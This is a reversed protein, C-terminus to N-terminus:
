NSDFDLIKLWDSYLRDFDYERRIKKSAEEGLQERLEPHKILRIVKQTLQDLDAYDALLGTREDEVYEPISSINFAAVPIRANMVELIANSTGEHQSTSVFIDIDRIFFEIDEVFGIFRVYEDLGREHVMQILKNKLRGEGGIKILFPINQNKLREAMYILFFQKKQEVCRGVNGIVLTGEKKYTTKYTADKLFMGNYIVHVKNVNVISRNKTLLLEKIYDSNAVIGSVWKRYIIKNLLNNKLPLATGRRCIVRKFGAMRAALAFIKVDNPLSLVMRSAGTKLLYKYISIYKLPNLFSYNNVEVLFLEAETNKLMEYLRGQRNVFAYVHYGSEMLRTAFDYHWKEGGGWIKSSNVLCIKKDM